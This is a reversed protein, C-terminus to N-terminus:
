WSDPSTFPQRAGCNYKHVVRDISSSTRRATLSPGDSFRVIPSTSDSSALCAIVYCRGSPESQEERSKEPKSGNSGRQGGDGFGEDMTQPIVFRHRSRQEVIIM